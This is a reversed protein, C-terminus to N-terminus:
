RVGVKMYAEHLVNMEEITLQHDVLVCLKHRYNINRADRVCYYGYTGPNFFVANKCNCATRNCIGSFVQGKDGEHTPYRSPHKIVDQTM